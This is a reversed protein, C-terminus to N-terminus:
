NLFLSSDNMAKKADIKGSTDNRAYVLSTFKFEFTIPSTPIFQTVKADTLPGFRTTLLLFDATIKSISSLQVFPFRRKENSNVESPKSSKRVYM